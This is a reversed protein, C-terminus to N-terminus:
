HGAATQFEGHTKFTPSVMKEKCLAKCIGRRPWTPRRDAPRVVTERHPNKWFSAQATGQSFPSRQTAM